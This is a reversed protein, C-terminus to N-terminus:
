ELQSVNKSGVPRVVKAIRQNLLVDLNVSKNRLRRILLVKFQDSSSYVVVKAFIKVEMHTGYKLSMRVVFM